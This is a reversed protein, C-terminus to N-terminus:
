VQITQSHHWNRKMHTFLFHIRCFWFKCIGFQNWWSFYKSHAQIGIYIQITLHQFFTILNSCHKKHLETKLLIYLHVHMHFHLEDSHADLLFWLATYRQINDVNPVLDLAIPHQFSNEEQVNVPEKTLPNHFYQDVKLVKLVFHM